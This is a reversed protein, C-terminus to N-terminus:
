KKRRKIYVFSAAVVSMVSAVSLWPALLQLRNLAVLESKSPPEWVGGVSSTSTIPSGTVQLSVVWKAWLSSSTLLGEPGVIVLRLPGVGSSYNGLTTGNIYYALMVTLTQNHQVPAPPIVNEWTQLNGTLNSYSLITSYGDAGTVNISYSMSPNAVMAVFTSIPVGTYYGLSGITGVKNVTGGFATYSTLSGIDTQTLVVETGRSGGPGVVTLTMAPLGPDAHAQFAQQCCIIGVFAITLLILLKKHIM